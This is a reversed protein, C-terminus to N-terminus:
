GFFGDFDEEIYVGNEERLCFIVYCIFLNSM